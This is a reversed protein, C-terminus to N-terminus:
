SKIFIYNAATKTYGFGRMNKRLAVIDDPKKNKPIFYQDLNETSIHWKDKTNNAVAVLKYNKDLNAMSADGHSNNTVLIGGTKLYKKGATSVFGAYQSILLDFDTDIDLAKTYDSQIFKVIPEQQYKKHKKIYQMLGPDNFLKAARKYSDVYATIPYVLSPSIHIHSGLYLAKSGGYTNKLEEFLSVREFQRDIFENKYTTIFDAM